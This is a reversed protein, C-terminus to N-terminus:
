PIKNLYGTGFEIGLLGEGGWEKSPLLFTYRIKLTKKNYLCLELTKIDCESLLDLFSCLDDLNKYAFNIIGLM